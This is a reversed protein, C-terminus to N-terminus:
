YWVGRFRREIDASHVVERNDIEFEYARLL